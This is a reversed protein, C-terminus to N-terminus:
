GIRIYRNDIVKKLLITLRSASIDLLSIELCAGDDEKSIPSIILKLLSLQHVQEGFDMKSVPTIILDEYDRYLEPDPYNAFLDKCFEQYEECINQYEEYAKDILTHTDGQNLISRAVGYLILKEHTRLSTILDNRFRPYIHTSIEKVMEVTIHDLKRKVCLSGCKRLIELGNRINQHDVVIQSIMKLVDETIVDKQFGVKSRYNLIHFVEDPSYPRLEIIEDFQIKKNARVREWDKERCIMLLSIQSQKKPIGLFSIIDDPELLHIEDIVLLIFQNNQKLKSFLPAQDPKVSRDTIEYLYKCILERIISDKSRFYTCNFSEIMLRNKKAVARARIDRAFFNAVLTKGISGKGIILCSVSFSEPGKLISKFNAELRTLADSRGILKKIYNYTYLSNLNLYIKEDWDWESNSIMNIM